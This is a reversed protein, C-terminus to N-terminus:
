VKAAGEPVAAGHTAIVRRACRAMNDTRAHVIIVIQGSRLADAYDLAPQDDLGIDVLAKAVDEAAGAATSLLGGLAGVASLVGFGSVPRSVVAVTSGVISALTGGRANPAARERAMLSISSRDCVCLGILDDIIRQAYVRKVALGAIAHEM